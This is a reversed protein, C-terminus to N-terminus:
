EKGIIKDIPIINNVFGKSDTDKFHHSNVPTSILNTVKLILQSKLDSDVNELLLYNELIKANLQLHRYKSLLDAYIRYNKQAFYYQSYFLGVFAIKLLSIAYLQETSVKDSFILLGFSAFVVILIFLLWGFARNRKKMWYQASQENNNGKDKFELEEVRIGIEKALAENTKGEIINTVNDLAGELKEIQEDTSEKEKKLTDVADDRAKESKIYDLFNDSTLLTELAIKKIVDVQSKINGIYVSAQGVPDNKVTELYSTINTKANELEQNEAYKESSEIVKILSNLRNLEQKYQNLVDESVEADKLIKIIKNNEIM